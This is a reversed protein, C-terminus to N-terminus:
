SEGASLIDHTAERARRLANRHEQSYPRASTRKVAALKAKRRDNARAKAATRLADAMRSRFVPTTM